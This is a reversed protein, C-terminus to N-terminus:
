REAAVMEEVIIAFTLYFIHTHKCFDNMFEYIAFFYLLFYPLHYFLPMNIACLEHRTSFAVVGLHLSANKLKNSAAPIHTPPPPHHISLLRM